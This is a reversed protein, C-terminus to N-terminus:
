RATEVRVGGLAVFTTIHLRKQAPGELDSDVRVDRGGLFTVGDVTVDVGRPVTINAGGVIAVVTVHTEGEDLIADTFDLRQGGLVSVSYIRHDARWRGRPTSSGGLISVFFM